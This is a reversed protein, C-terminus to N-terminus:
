QPLRVIGIFSPTSVTVPSATPVLTGQAVDIRLPFINNSDQNAAYLFTGTPDVTFDWPKVGGSKTHGKLTMKGTAEDIAFVVISDDGRNSGFVLKGSPHVVVQSGTNVGVFGQPATPQTEIERLTGSASDFAFATMTSNTENILYVYKGSPHFALHRPGAMQATAVHPVANPLLKGAVADFRFQAIYDSGLCPVFVFQNSPDVLTMHAYMGVTQSDTAAGLKGGAGVPLVAVTGTDYNAVFVYKGTVDVSVFAPGSGSSSVSNNLYTLAGDTAGIAYSGVRGTTSEDVAYLNTTGRNVALFSPSSGFAAISGHATLAGTIPDVHFISINPGYGSAYAVLPGNAAGAEPNSQGADSNASAADGSDARAM